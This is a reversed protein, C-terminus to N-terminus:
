FYVKYIEPILTYNKNLNDFKLDFIKSTKKDVIYICYDKDQRSTELENKTLWFMNGSKTKVEIHKENGRLDFSLIDYGLSVENSKNEVKDALEKKGQRMLREIEYNFVIEESEKGKIRKKFNEREFDDDNKIIVNKLQKNNVVRKEKPIAVEVLSFETKKDETIYFINKDVNKMQNALIWLFSHADLLDVEDIIEERSILFGRVERMIELFNSYNQWSCKKNTAFNIGLEKFIKDFTIPAVTLYKRNSKLFFLFSLFPYIKGSLSLINNFSEEDSVNSLYFDFLIKELNLLLEKDEKAKILIKDQRANEGRRNDHILLNNGKQNIAKQLLAIIKGTGIDNNKWSKVQLIDISNNYILKKYNEQEDIYKNDFSTFDQGSVNNIFIKFKKFNKELNLIKIQM